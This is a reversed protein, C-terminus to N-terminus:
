EAVSEDQPVTAAVLGSDTGVAGASGAASASPPDIIKLSVQASGTTVEDASIVIEGSKIKAIVADIDGQTLTDLDSYDIALDVSDDAIGYYVLEGGRFTKDGEFDRIIAQSVGKYSPTVAFLCTANEERLDAGGSIFPMNKVSAAKGVATGINEGVTFIIEAGDGYLDLADSMRLPTLKDSGSYVGTIKVADNGLSMESAAAM